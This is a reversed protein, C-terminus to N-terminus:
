LGPSIRSGLEKQQENRSSEGSGESILKRAHNVFERIVM